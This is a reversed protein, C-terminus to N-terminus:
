QIQFYGMNAGQFDKQQTQPGFRHFFHLFDVKELFIQFNLRNGKLIRASRLFRGLPRKKLAPRLKALKELIVM